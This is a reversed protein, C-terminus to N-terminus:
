GRDYHTSLSKDTGEGLGLWDFNVQNLMVTGLNPKIALAQM